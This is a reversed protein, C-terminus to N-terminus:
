LTKCFSELINNIGNENEYFLDDCKQMVAEAEENEEDEELLLYAKYATVLNEKFIDPLIEDLASMEKSIDGTNEMNVFYQSHGGNNVESQYTMLENYPFAIKGDAWLDWMKNWQANEESLTTNERISKKKRKFLDFIMVIVGNM